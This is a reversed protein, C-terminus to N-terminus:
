QRPPRDLRASPNAVDFPASLRRWVTQLQSSPDIMASAAPLSPAHASCDGTCSAPIGAVDDADFIQEFAQLAPAAAEAQVSQGAFTDGGFCGAHVTTVSALSAILISIAMLVSMAFRFGASERLPLRALTQTRAIAM